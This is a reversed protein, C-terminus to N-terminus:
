LEEKRIAISDLQNIIYDIMHEAVNIGTCDYINKFHANSNVECVLPDEGEGFLLDVGAFDLGITKCCRIALIEQERTPQYYKMKGGNSINARFDGNDSYRYMAAVVRNGVVQIRIDRAFSTTVYQQFLLPRMGCDKVKQLLEDYNHVLYVQKGFSGYCEKVVIPFDLEEMVSDLFTYNTYGINEYTMPSVITKPVPINDQKLILYTYSKDDCIEIAKSNNFVPLGKMELAQALRIDKDWFLIFDPKGKQLVEDLNGVLLMANTKVTLEINNDKAAHIFWSFHENFKETQLFENYILWGVVM